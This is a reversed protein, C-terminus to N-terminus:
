LQSLEIPLSRAARFQIGLPGVLAGIGILEGAARRVFCLGNGAHRHVSKVPRQYKPIVDPKLCGTHFLAVRSMSLAASNGGVFTGELTLV